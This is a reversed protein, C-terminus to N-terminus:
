TGNNILKQNLLFFFLSFFFSLKRTFLISHLCDVTELLCESSESFEISCTFHSGYSNVSGSSKQMKYDSLGSSFHVLNPNPTKSCIIYSHCVIKKLQEFLFSLFKNTAYTNVGPVICRQRCNWTRIKCSKDRKAKCM